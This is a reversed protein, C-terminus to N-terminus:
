WRAVGWSLGAIRHGVARGWGVTAAQVAQSRDSTGPGFREWATLTSGDFPVEARRPPEDDPSAHELSTGSLDPFPGPLGARVMAGRLDRAYDANGEPEGPADRLTCCLAPIFDGDLTQVLVPEPGYGTPGAAAYLRDLEERTISYVVGCAQGGVSRLLTAQRGIRLSRGTVLGLRASRPEVGKGRLVDPDLYLGYFFVRILRDPSNDVESSM